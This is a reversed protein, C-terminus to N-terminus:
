GMGWGMVGREDVDIVALSDEIENQGREVGAEAFAASEACSRDAGTCVAEAARLAEPLFAFETV